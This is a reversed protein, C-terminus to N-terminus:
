GIVERRLAMAVFQYDDNRTWNNDLHSVSPKVLAHKMLTLYSYHLRDWLHIARELMSWPIESYHRPIASQIIMMATLVSLRADPHSPQYEADMGHRQLTAIYNRTRSDLM